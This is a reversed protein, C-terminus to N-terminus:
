KFLNRIEFLIMIVFSAIALFVTTKIGGSIFKSVGESVDFKDHLAALKGGTEMSSMSYLIGFLAVIAIFGIIAKLSAKPFKAVNIIGFLVAVVLCAVALVIALWIGPNFFNMGAKAEDGLGNLDTSLDYGASSIGSLATGLFIAICVVGLILAATQGNKTLFKYM